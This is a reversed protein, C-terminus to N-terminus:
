IFDDDDGDEYAQDGLDDMNLKYRIFILLINM